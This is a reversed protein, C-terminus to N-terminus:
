IVIPMVITKFNNESLVFPLNSDNLGINFETGNIANLFDLLYKSNIAISFAEEFGTPYNIDTKAEINDDSLSEFTITDYLFTIKVDTSITTIQKISEIM